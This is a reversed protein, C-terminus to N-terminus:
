KKKDVISWVVGIVSLLGGILEGLMESDLLGNTVLFGGGFTFVHRLLGVVQEKNM